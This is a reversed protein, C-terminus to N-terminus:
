GFLGPQKGYRSEIAKDRQVNSYFETGGRLFEGSAGFMGKSAQLNGMYSALGAQQSGVRLREGASFDALTAAYRRQVIEEGIARQQLATNYRQALVQLEAQRVNEHMVFLPSSNELSIGSAAAVAQSQGYLRAFGERFRVEQWAASSAVIEQEQEAIAALRRQQVAELQLQQAEAQANNKAVQANYKGLERSQQAAYMQGFVSAISGAAQAWSGVSVSSPNAATFGTEAM